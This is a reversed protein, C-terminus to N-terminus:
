PLFQKPLRQRDKTIKQIRTQIARPTTLALSLKSKLVNSRMQSGLAMELQIAPEFQKHARFTFVAEEFFNFIGEHGNNHEQEIKSVFDSLQFEQGSLRLMILQYYLSDVEACSADRKM